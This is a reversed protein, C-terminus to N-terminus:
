AHEPENRPSRSSRTRVSAWRRAPPLSCIQELPVALVERLRKRDALIASDRNLPGRLLTLVAKAYHTPETALAYEIWKGDRRDVVLGALKLLTLHKSVTSPALGLVAQVQCVCLGRGELLKLIRTRTPDAAAKLALELERM